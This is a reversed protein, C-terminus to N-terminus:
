VVYHLQKTPDFLGLELKALTEFILSLVIIKHEGIRETPHDPRVVQLEVHVRDALQCANWPDPNVVQTMGIGTEGQSRTATDFDDALLETM